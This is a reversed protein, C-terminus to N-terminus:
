SGRDPRRIATCPWGGATAKLWGASSSCGWAWAGTLARLTQGAFLEFLRKQDAPQVGIGRDSISIRVTAGDDDVAIRVQGGAGFKLANDLLNAVAHSLWMRDWTGKVSPPAQVSIECRALEAAPRLEDV